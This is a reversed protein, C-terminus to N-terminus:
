IHIIIYIYLIYGYKLTKAMIALSNLVTENEGFTYWHQSLISFDPIHFQKLVVSAIWITSIRINNNIFILHIKEFIVTM